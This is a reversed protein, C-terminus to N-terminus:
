FVAMSSHFEAALQQLNGVTPYKAIFRNVGAAEAKKRDVPNESSTVMLVIVNKFAPKSRVWQTFEVGDMNPMHLDTLLLWPIYRSKPHHSEAELYTVAALSDEFAIVKNKIGAKILLRKLIFVDDPEDDVILVPPLSEM